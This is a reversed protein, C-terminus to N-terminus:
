GAEGRVCGAFLVDALGGAEFGYGWGHLGPVDGLGAFFGDRRLEAMQLAAYEFGHFRARRQEGNRLGVREGVSDGLLEGFGPGEGEVAVDTVEARRPHAVPVEDTLM